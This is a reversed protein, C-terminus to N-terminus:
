RLYGHRGGEWIKNQSPARYYTRNYTRANFTCNVFITREFQLPRVRYDIVTPAITFMIFLYTLSIPKECETLSTSLVHFFM